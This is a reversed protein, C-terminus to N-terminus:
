LEVKERTFEWYVMPRGPRQNSIPKRKVFGREELIKLHDYVTTRPCILENGLEKRTLKGNKLLVICIAYDLPNM